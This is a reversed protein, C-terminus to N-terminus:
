TAAGEKAPWGAPANGNGPPDGVRAVAGATTSFSGGLVIRPIPFGPRERGEVILGAWKFLDRLSFADANLFPSSWAKRNLVGAPNSAALWIITEAVLTSGVPGLCQGAQAVEAEKLVYYWLPADDFIAQDLGLEKPTLPDIGLEKAVAAGSPLRMQYGRLLTVLALSPHKDQLPVAVANLARSLRTDIQRAFQPQLDPRTDNWEQLLFGWDASWGEPLPRGGRLDDLPGPLSAPDVLIPRPPTWPNLMYSPRVMSHGFRFAALSFELPIWTEPGPQDFARIKWVKERTGDALSRILKSVLEEGCIRPLYDRLVITEYHLRVQDQAAHFVADGGKGEGKAWERIKNHIKLFALHMQSVILNQDNRPDGIMAIGQANRPLDDEAAIPLSDMAIDGDRMNWAISRAKGLLFKGSEAGREYLYPHDLPGKGYLSDLDMRPTRYNWQQNPDLQKEFNGIPDFTLDHALFQGLYGLGAPMGKNDRDADREQEPTEAMGKALEELAGRVKDDAVKPKWAGLAPFLRRYRGKDVPAGPVPRERSQMGGMLKVPLTVASLNDPLDFSLNQM